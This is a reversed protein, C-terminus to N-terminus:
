ITHFISDILFRRNKISEMKRRDLSYPLSDIKSFSAYIEVYKIDYGEKSCKYYNKPPKGSKAKTGYKRWRYGDDNIDKEVKEEILPISEHNVVSGITEVPEGYVASAMSLLSLGSNEQSSSTNPSDLPPPVESSSIAGM